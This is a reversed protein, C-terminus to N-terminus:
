PREYTGAIQIVDGTGWAFPTTSGGNSLFGYVGAKTGVVELGYASVTNPSNLFGGGLWGGSGTDFLFVSLNLHNGVMATPTSFTPTQVATWTTTSGRIFEIKFHVTKGIQCYRGSVTGNGPTFNTMAPTYAQWSGDTAKMQADIIDFNANLDSLVSVFDGTGPKRLNYNTTFTAM